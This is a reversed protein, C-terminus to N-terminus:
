RLFSDFSKVMFQGKKADLLDLSKEDSRETKQKKPLFEEVRKLEWNNLNMLFLTGSSKMMANTFSGRDLNKPTLSKDFFLKEPNLIYFIIVFPKRLFIM